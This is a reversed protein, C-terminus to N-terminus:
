TISDLVVEQIPPTVGGAKSYALVTESDDVTTITGEGAVGSDGTEVKDSDAVEDTRSAEAEEAPEKTDMTVAVAKEVVVTFTKAPFADLTSIPINSV